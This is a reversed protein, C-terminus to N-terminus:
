PSITTAMRPSGPSIGVVPTRGDFSSSPLVSARDYRCPRCRGFSATRMSRMSLACSASSLVNCDPFHQDAWRPQLFLGQPTSVGRKRPDSSGEWPRSREIYRTRAFIKKTVIERFQM